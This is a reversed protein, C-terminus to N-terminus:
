IYHGCGRYALVIQSFSILPFSANKKVNKLLVIKTWSQRYYRGRLRHATVAFEVAHPGRLVRHVIHNRYMLLKRMALRHAETFIIAVDDTTPSLSPLPRRVPRIWLYHKGSWKDTDSSFAPQLNPFRNINKEQRM